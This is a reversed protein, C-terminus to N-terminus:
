RRRHRAAAGEPCRLVPDEDGFATWDRDRLHVCPDVPEQGPAARLEGLLVREPVRRAVAPDYPGAGRFLRGSYRSRRRCLPQRRRQDAPLHGSLHGWRFGFHFGNLNLMEVAIDLFEVDVAPRFEVQFEGLLRLTMAGRAGSHDGATVVEADACFSEGQKVPLVIDQDDHHNFGGEDVLDAAPTGPDGSVATAPAQLWGTVPMGHDPQVVDGIVGLTNTGNGGDMNQELIDITGNGNTVDAATVVATHGERWTPEMSLVDGPEPVSSGDNAMKQLDGGDARSYDAVVDSGNAPYPRVGYELYLWRMSLEVCEWEYEGWARPFFAVTKDWGGRNVGPGCATLGDWSSLPFSGPYNNADCNGSWWAPFRVPPPDATSASVLIVHQTVPSAPGPRILDSSPVTTPTSIDTAVVSTGAAFAAEASRNSRLPGAAQIIWLRSGADTLWSVVETAQRHAGLAVELIRASGEVSHGFILAPTHVSRILRGTGMARYEGLHQPEVIGVGAAPAASGFPYAYITFARYPAQTVAAAGQLVDGPKSAVFVAAPLAPSRVVLDVADVVTRASYAGASARISTVGLPTALASVLVIGTVLTEMRWTSREYRM